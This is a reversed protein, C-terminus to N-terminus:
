IQTSQLIGKLFIQESGLCIRVLIQSFPITLAAPEIKYKVFNKSRYLFDCWARIQFPFEWFRSTIQKQKQTTKARHLVSMECLLNLWQGGCAPHIKEDFPLWSSKCHLMGTLAEFSCSSVAEEDFICAFGSAEAPKDWVLVLQMVVCKGPLMQVFKTFISQSNQMQFSNLHKTLSKAANDSKPSFDRATKNQSQINPKWHHSRFSTFYQELSNSRLSFSFSLFSCKWSLPIVFFFLFLFCFFVFFLFCFYVAFVCGFTEASIDRKTEM